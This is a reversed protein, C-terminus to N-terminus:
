EDKLDEIEKLVMDVGAIIGTNFGYECKINESRLLSGASLETSISHKIAKIKTIIDQTIESEKWAYVNRM